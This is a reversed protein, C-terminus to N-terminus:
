SICVLDILFYFFKDLGHSAEFIRFQTLFLFDISAHEVAQKILVSEQMSVRRLIKFLNGFEKASNNLMADNIASQLVYGKLKSKLCDSSFALSLLKTHYCDPLEKVHQRLKHVEEFINILYPM